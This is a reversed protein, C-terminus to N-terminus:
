KTPEKPEAAAVAEIIAQHVDAPLFDYLEDEDILNNITKLLTVKSSDVVRKNWAKIADDRWETWVDYGTRVEPGACACEACTVFGYKAGQNVEFSKPCDASLVCGCFPCPKIKDSM